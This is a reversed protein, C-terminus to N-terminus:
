HDAGRNVVNSAVNVGANKPRNYFYEMVQKALPAAASSGHAGHEILICMALKPERDLVGCVFWAHDRLNYPIQQDSTYEKYQEIAVMQASGTKGLVIMGPIKAAKGTGTPPPSDKEVCKRLGERVIRLTKESVFSESVKPGLAKNLYPRVRHGGNISSAMMVACQLPTAAAEGQGIALNVTNGPYWKWEWPNDPYLKKLQAEKWERSPILGEVERPLDIGTKVGLGLRHSWEAIKDVGLRLGVNYFFVDCSYALADVVSVTGHGAHNWCKWHRDVGPLQFFGPCFFSTHEDIIGEELAATALMVKFTSGPAYTERFCRNVMPNPKTTLAESRERNRGHIVFVGPDYSPVSALTLVAGTDAELVAIAGVQGELLQECYKQLDIDLTTYLSHGSAPDVRFDPEEKLKRGYSDIIREIDPKGTADTRLQPRTDSAYVNVVLQGDIGHMDKEYMQELGGRGVLDGLQYQDNDEMEDTGIEGLYGLIQGATKGLLYRRQPRAVAYLGPLAYTYEEVRTLDDKTVDQKVTIQRYLQRQRRSKEIKDKLSQADIRLLRELRECVQSANEQKCEAPIMVLDCSPRNDALVVSADPGFILGRPAKLRQPHLRNFEAMQRYEYWHVIQLDWLRVALLAFAITMVAGVVYIRKDIGEYGGKKPGLAM